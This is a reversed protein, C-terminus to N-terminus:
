SNGGTRTSRVETIGASTNIFCSRVQIASTATVKDSTEAQLPPPPEELLESGAGAEGVAAEDAPCEDPGAEDAMGGDADPDAADAADAATAGDVPVIM